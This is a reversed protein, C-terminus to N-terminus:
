PLRAPGSKEITLSERALFILHRHLIFGAAAILVGVIEIIDTLM